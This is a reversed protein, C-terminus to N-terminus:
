FCSKKIKGRPCIRSRPCIIQLGLCPHLSHNSLALIPRPLCALPSQCYDLDSIICCLGPYHCHVYFSPFNLYIESYQVEHNCILSSEWTELKVVYSIPDLFCIHPSPLNHPFSFIGMKSTKNSISKSMWASISLCSISM